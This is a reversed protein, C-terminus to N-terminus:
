QQWNANHQELPSFLRALLTLSTEKRGLAGTWRMVNVQLVCLIINQHQLLPFSEIRNRFVHAQRTLFNFPVEGWQLLMFMNQSILVLCLSSNPGLLMWPKWVLVSEQKKYITLLFHYVMVAWLVVHLLLLLVCWRMLKRGGGLDGKNAEEFCISFGIHM